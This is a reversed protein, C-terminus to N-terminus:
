RLASRSCVSVHWNDWSIIGKMVKEANRRVLETRDVNGHEDRPMEDKDEEVKGNGNGNGNGNEGNEKKGNEMKEGDGDSIMDERERKGGLLLSRKEEGVWAKESGQSDRDDAAAGRAARAARALRGCNRYKSYISLREFIPLM